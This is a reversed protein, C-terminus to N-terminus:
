TLSTSGSSSDRALASARPSSAAVHALGADQHEVPVHLPGFAQRGQELEHVEVRAQGLRAVDEWPLRLVLAVERHHDAVDGAVRRPRCEDVPEARLGQVRRQHQQWPVVVLGAPAVAEVRFGDPRQVVRDPAGLQLFGQAPGAELAQAVVGLALAGGLVAGGAGAVRREAQLPHDVLDGREVGGHQDQALRAGALLDGRPRDM